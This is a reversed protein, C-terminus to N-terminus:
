IHNPLLWIPAHVHLCVHACVRVSLCVSRCVSVGGGLIWTVRLSGMPSFGSGQPGPVASRGREPLELCLHLATPQTTVTAGQSIQAGRGGYSKGFIPAKLFVSSLNPWVPLWSSITHSPPSPPPKSGPGKGAKEKGEAQTQNRLGLDGQTHAQCPHLGRHLLPTQPNGRQTQGKSRYLAGGYHWGPVKMGTRIRKRSTAGGPKKSGERPVQSLETWNLENWM